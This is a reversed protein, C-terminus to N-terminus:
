SELPSSISIKFGDPDVIAFDRVGWPQDTPQQALEGGRAEIDAAVQDIPQRTTCYLRWGVGKDRDRGQAFDDQGLLFEVTGAKLRAAVLDGDNRHEESVIFDLVDCYWAISAALDDVTLAPMVSSLRLNEPQKREVM